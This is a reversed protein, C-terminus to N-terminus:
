ENTTSTFEGVAVAFAVEGCVTQTSSPIQRDSHPCSCTSMIIPVGNIWSLADRLLDSQKFSFWLINSLVSIKEAMSSIKSRKGRERERVGIGNLNPSNPVTNKGLISVQRLVKKTLERQENCMQM